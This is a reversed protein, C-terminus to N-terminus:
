RSSASQNGPCTTRRTLSSRWCSSPCATDVVFLHYSHCRSCMACSSSIDAHCVLLVRRSQKGNETRDETKLKWIKINVTRLSTAFTINECAHTQGCPFPTCPGPPHITQPPAQGPPHTGPGLPTCPGPSHMTGPLPHKEWCASLCVGGWSLHSTSCVICM